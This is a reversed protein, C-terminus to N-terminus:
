FDATATVDDSSWGVDCTEGSNFGCAGGWRPARPTNGYDVSTLTVTTGYAFKATCTATNSAGNVVSLAFFCSLGAPSSTVIPATSCSWTQTFVGDYACSGGPRSMNLTLRQGAVFAATVNKAATMVVQCGGTGSCDGSWGSFFATGSPAETLTVAAGDAFSASCTGPCSIGAPSSTVSGTPATSPVSVTLTRSVGVCTLTISSVGAGNRAGYAVDVTGTGHNCSAGDLSDLSALAGGAPGPPGQPGTPGDEGKPGQAGAPGTDGKAGPAGTPGPPGAPGPQGAQNWSIESEKDTCHSMLNTSPLSKDILRITGVGKLMCASYVNDPGPITAYAVGGAIAAAVLAGVASALLRKRNM